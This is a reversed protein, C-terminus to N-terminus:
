FIVVVSKDSTHLDATFGLFDQEIHFDSLKKGKTATTTTTIKIKLKKKFPM